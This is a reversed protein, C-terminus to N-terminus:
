ETNVAFKPVPLRFLLLNDFYVIGESGKKYVLPMFSVAEDPAKICIAEPHWYRVTKARFVYHNGLHINNVTLWNGGLSGKGLATTKMWGAYVYNNGDRVSPYPLVTIGRSGVLAIVSSLTQNRTDLVLKYHEEWEDPNKSLEMGITHYGYPLSPFALNREFGGNPLLNDVTGIQFLRQDVKVYYWNEVKWQSIGDKGQPLEWYLTISIPSLARELELENM